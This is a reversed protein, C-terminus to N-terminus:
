GLSENKSIKELHELVMKADEDQSLHAVQETTLDASHKMIYNWRDKMNILDSCGKNFDDLKVIVVEFIIERNRDPDRAGLSVEEVDNQEGESATSHLFVLSYTPTIKSSDTLNNQKLDYDHQFSWDAMMYGSFNKKKSIAIQLKVIIDKGSSLKVRLGLVTRDIDSSGKIDFKKMLSAFTREKTTDIVVVDSVEDTINFFERLLSTLVPKNSTFFRKLAAEETFSLYRTQKM